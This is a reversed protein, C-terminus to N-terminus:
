ENDNAVLFYEVFNEVTPFKKAEKTWQPIAENLVLDDKSVKFAFSTGNTVM